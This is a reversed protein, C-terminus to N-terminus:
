RASGGVSPVPSVVVAPATADRQEVRVTSGPKLAARVQGTMWARAAQNGEVTITEPSGSADALIATKTLLRASAAGHAGVDKGDFDIRLQDLVPASQTTGDDAKATETRTRVDARAGAAKAEDALKQAQALEHQHVKLAAVGGVVAGAACGKLMDHGGGIFRGLIAGGACGLITGGTVSRTPDSKSGFVGGVKQTATDISACGALLFGPFRRRRRPHSLREHPLGQPPPSPSAPFAAPSPM